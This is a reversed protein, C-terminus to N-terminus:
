HVVPGQVACYWYLVTVYTGNCIRCIYVDMHSQECNGQQACWGSCAIGGFARRGVRGAWFFRHWVAGGAGASAARAEVQDMCCDELEVRGWLNWTDYYHYVWRSRIPCSSGGGVGHLVRQEKAWLGGRGGFGVSGVQEQQPLEEGGAAVHWM